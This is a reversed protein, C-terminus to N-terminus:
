LVVCFVTILTLFLGIIFSYYGLIMDKNKTDILELNHKIAFDYDGLAGSMYEDAPIDYEYHYVESDNTPYLCYKKLLCVKLFLFASIFYAILSVLFLITEMGHLIPLLLSIELTLMVSIISLMQFSKNDLDNVINGVQTYATKMNEMIINDDM